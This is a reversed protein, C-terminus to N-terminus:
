EELFCRSGHGDSVTFVKPKELKCKELVSECRTSFHCGAPYKDPSPVIGPITKLKEEKKLKLGSPVSAILAKTYPHRPNEVIEDITGTEVIQGAYMVAIRDSLASVLGMDHSIFLISMNREKKLGLLLDVLQAQITVDLASTPEDAILLQPECMLAMAISIRELMGGSMQNPYAHLRTDLDTLGVSSLLEKAKKIAQNKDPSIHILYSETLQDKIKKLPNLSTFPDQFIYAIEKGRIKRLEENPLSILNKEGFRIEGEKYRILNVPLLRTLSMSCVSKGCGSEGVLSLIEGKKLNFSVDQIVPLISHPLVIDLFLNKVELLNGM